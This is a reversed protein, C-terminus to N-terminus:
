FELEWHEVAGEADICCEIYKPHQANAATATSVGPLWYRTEFTPTGADADLIILPTRTVQFTGDAREVSRTRAERRCYATATSGVVVEGYINATATSVAFTIIQNLQM